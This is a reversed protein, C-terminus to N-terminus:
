KNLGLKQRLRDADFGGVLGEFSRLLGVLDERMTPDDAAERPTMGALAPVMEDMWRDEAQDLYEAMFKETEPDIAVPTSRDDPLGLARIQKFTTAPRREEGVVVAGPLSKLIREVREVSNTEVMLQDGERRLRARIIREDASLEHYETWGSDEAEFMRNLHRNLEDWGGPGPELYITCIVLDEGERNSLHPPASSWGLWEALDDADYSSDLVEILQARHRLDVRLPMGVLFFADFAAVVRALVYEGVQLHRSGEKEDVEVQDGTKTDRLGIAAGPTTTTVEWLRRESILFLDLLDRDTQSLLMGREEIYEELTGGEFIALDVIFPDQVREALDEIEWEGIMASSAIGVVRHRRHPRHTYTVLRNVLWGIRQRDSLRPHIQCCVKYKRGSGCPCPDNRGVGPRQSFLEALYALAPHEAEIGARRLMRLAGPGDGRDALYAALEFAAPSFGPDILVATELDAEAALTAGEREHNLARLYHAPASKRGTRGILIDLFGALHASGHDLEDLVWDAFAPAVSGHRLDQDIEIGPPTRAAVFNSWSELVREMAEQCCDSFGWEESVELLRHRRSVVAPSEWPQGVPGVFGGVLELGAPPLLEGVPVVPQRFLDPQDVLADLILEFPEVGLGPEPQRLGFATVLALSEARGEGVPAVPELRLGDGSRSFGVIQGPDFGALWGEPGVLSGGQDLGDGETRSFEIHVMGGNELSLSERGWDLAELDPSVHVVGAAIELATLRHTFVRGDLLLDTRASLGSESQWFDDTTALIDELLEEPGVDYSDGLDAFGPVSACAEFLDVWRLPGGALARRAAELVREEVEHEDFNQDAM